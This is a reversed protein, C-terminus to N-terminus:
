KSLYEKPSVGVTKKFVTSFYLPDSFGSMLAVNKVSDLGHDFLTIAYQIRTMRLYEAFGVGMEKKFLHSLYKSNYNLMRAVSQISLAPDDFNKDIIELLRDVLRDHSPKAATLRSFAYLLASEAAMDVADADARALSEKWLPVLSEFNSFLRRVKQIQFRRFLEEARGGEFRIYLYEFGEAPQARVREGDFCFLLDGAAVSFRKEDLVFTGEGGTVLTMQHAPLLIEEAMTEQNSELVFCLASLCERQAYAPFKCINHEKM